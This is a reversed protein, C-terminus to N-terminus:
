CATARGCAQPRPATTDVPSAEAATDAAPEPEPEPAPTRSMTRTLRCEAVSRPTFAVKAILDSSSDLNIPRGDDGPMEVLNAAKECTLEWPLLKIDKLAAQIGSLLRTQMLVTRQYLTAGTGDPFRRWEESSINSILETHGKFM